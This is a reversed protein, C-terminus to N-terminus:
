TIPGLDRSRPQTSGSAVSSGSRGVRLEYQGDARHLLLNGGFPYGPRELGVVRLASGRSFRKKLSERRAQVTFNAGTDARLPHAKSGDALCHVRGVARTFHRSQRKRQVLVGVHVVGGFGLVM